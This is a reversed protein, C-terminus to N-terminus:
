LEFRNLLPIKYRTLDDIGIRPCACNVLVNLNLGELKEPTVEDMALIIVEKGQEELRKKLAFPDYFMQGRKWSVVIGVKRADKLCHRNWAILRQVKKRFDSLSRIEGKELDLNLVPKETVLTVGSAYFKGASVCLFCDVENEIEKAADLQCGLVQGPYQLAKYALVKKGKVELFHKVKPLLKVFQISTILGIRDFEDIKEFEKKLIPLPDADIFYEWYVVPVLTKAIFPEHGIHLIADCGLRKAEVDRVDCAGYCVELCAVCEFGHAELEHLISQIKLKLGEGFQVLIKKANVKKLKNIVNSLEYM